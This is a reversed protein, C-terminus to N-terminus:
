FVIRSEMGVNKVMEALTDSLRFTLKKGLEDAKDCLNLLVGLCSSNMFEIESLDFCVGVTSSYLAGELVETLLYATNIGKLSKDRAKCVLVTKMDSTEYSYEISLNDM